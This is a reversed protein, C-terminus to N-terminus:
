SKTRKTLCVGENAVTYTGKLLSIESVDILFTFHFFDGKHRDKNEKLSEYSGRLFFSKTIIAYCVLCLSDLFAM